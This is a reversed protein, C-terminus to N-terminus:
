FKYNLGVRVINGDTKIRQTYAGAFGLAGTAAVTQNRTGLDYYLYEAKLTVASSNVFNFFSLFGNTPIAWEVGGGVAYGTETDSRTGYYTRILGSPDRFDAATRLDGYAFGGTGYVLFRDFAYGVRGRVTGLYSLNTNVINNRGAFGYGQTTNLDTAAIDAEVGVVFGNGPTFQYNYGIQGGGTIGDTSPGISGPRAIGFAPETATGVGTTFRSRNDFAGGINVGAYFGTWTFVPIIPAVPTPKRYSLDAAFASSSLATALLAAAAIKKM